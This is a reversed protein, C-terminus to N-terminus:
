AGVGGVKTRDRHGGAKGGTRWRAGGMCAAAGPRRLPRATVGARVCAGRAKLLRSACLVITYHFADCIRSISFGFVNALDIKQLSVYNTTASDHSLIQQYGVRM